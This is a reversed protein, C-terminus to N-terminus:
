LIINDILRVKGLRIAASLCIGKAATDISKFSVPDTLAIYDTKISDEEDLRKKVGNIIEKSDKVGSKFLSNGAMLASYLVPATKREATGLYVNRSSLALGDKERVTPIVEIKLDMNLDAAMSKIVACQQADKQGLFMIDPSIINILKTVVTAVGEFHGPRVAGECIDTIGGKLSVQAFFGEPYMEKTEPVFVLDVGTNEMLATDRKLDRPYVSFDENKGFQAPNVFISVATFGCIEVSSRILSLHGEHLYGMTPVFGISEGAKRKAKIVAKTENITKILQM